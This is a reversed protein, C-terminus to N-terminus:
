VDSVVKKCFELVDNDSFINRAYNFILAVFRINGRIYGKSNDIRDLSASYPGAKEKNSHTRLELKQKTFPCIGNQRKWMESIYELDVDYKQNRKKSNKIVNKIYWRFETHKDLRNNPVLNTNFKGAYKHLHDVNDKGSCGLNCYFVKRGKKKQRNIETLRKTSKKECYNCVIDITTIMSVEMRTNYYVL